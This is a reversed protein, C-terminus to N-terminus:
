NRKVSKRGPPNPPRVEVQAPRFDGGHLQQTKPLCAEGEFDVFLLRDGGMQPGFVVQRLGTPKATRGKASARPDDCDLGGPFPSVSATATGKQDISILVLVDKGQNRDAFLISRSDPSWYFASEHWHQQAEAAGVNDGFENKWGAPYISTGVDIDEDRSSGPARNRAPGVSFDYLLYEDSAPRETSRPYFKRFVIWRGNPSLVPDYSFVTDVVSPVAPDVVSFSMGNMM